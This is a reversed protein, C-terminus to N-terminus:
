VWETGEQFGVMKFCAFLLHGMAYGLCSDSGLGAKWEKPVRLGPLPHLIVYKTFYKILSVSYNYVEVM